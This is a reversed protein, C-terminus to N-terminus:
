SLRGELIALRREFRSATKAWSKHLRALERDLKRMAVTHQRVETRQTKTLFREQKTFDRQVKKLNHKLLRVEARQEKTMNM